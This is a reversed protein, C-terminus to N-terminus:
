KAFFDDAHFYPIELRKAFTKDTTQDGVYICKRPDLKHKRIWYVGMGSQPKRCYCTPPVNHPCCITDVNVGLLKNQHDFCDRADSATLQGRAIGSQNSAGLLLIGEKELEKLKEKRNELIKIESPNTPFKLNGTSTRLTDDSDFIYAVNTHDALHNRVFKHTTINAFGEAKTPAEHKKKHVFHVAIPFINDDKKAQSHSAIDEPTWFIQEYRDWMRHLSNIICDETSTKMYYCNVPITAENIFLAREDKTSFLNDLVVSKGAAIAQKMPSILDKVAGKTTDRNLYVYGKDIFSKSLSSKGSAPLGLVMAVEQSM